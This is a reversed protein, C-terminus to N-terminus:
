YSCKGKAMCPSNFNTSVILPLLVQMRVFSIYSKNPPYPSDLAFQSIKTTTDGPANACTNYGFHSDLKKFETNIVVIVVILLLPLIKWLHGSM